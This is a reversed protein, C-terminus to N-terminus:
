HLTPDRSGLQPHMYKFFYFKKKFLIKEYLINQDCNGMM